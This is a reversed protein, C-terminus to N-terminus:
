SLPRRCRMPGPAGVIARQPRSVIVEHGTGVGGIGLRRGPTDQDGFILCQDSEVECLHEPFLSVVDDTLGAVPLFGDIQCFPSRSSHIPVILVGGIRM